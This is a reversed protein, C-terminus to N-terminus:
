HTPMTLALESEAGRSDLLIVILLLLLFVLVLVLLLVILIRLQLFQRTVSRRDSTRGRFVRRRDRTVPRRQNATPDEQPQTARRRRLLDDQGPRRNWRASCRPPCRFTRGLPGIGTRRYRARTQAQIRPRDRCGPQSVSARRQASEVRCPVGAAFRGCAS